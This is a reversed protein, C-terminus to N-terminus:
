DGRDQNTLLTASSDKDDNLLLSYNKAKRNRRRCVVCCCIAACVVILVLLGIGGGGAYLLVRGQMLCQGYQWDGCQTDFNFGDSKLDGLGFFSGGTFCRRAESCYLCGPAIAHCQQCSGGPALQECVGTGNVQGNSGMGNSGLSGMGNSGPNAGTNDPPATPLLGTILACPITGNVCQGAMQATNMANIGAQADAPCIASLGCAGINCAKSCPGVQDAFGALMAFAPQKFVTTMAPSCISIAKFFAPDQLLNNISTVNPIPGPKYILQGAAACTAADLGFNSGCPTLAGGAATILKEVGAAAAKCGFRTFACALSRCLKSKAGVQFPVQLLQLV